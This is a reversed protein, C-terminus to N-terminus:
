FGIYLAFFPHIFPNIQFSTHHPTFTRLISSYSFSSLSTLYLFVFCFICIYLFSLFPIFLFYFPSYNSFCFIILFFFSVPPCPFSCFNLPSLSTSPPSFLSPPLPPLAPLAYPCILPLNRGGCIVALGSNSGVIVVKHPPSVLSALCGRGAVPALRPAHYPPLSSSNNDPLLTKKKKRERTQLINSM